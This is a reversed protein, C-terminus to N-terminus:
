VTWHWCSRLIEDFYANFNADSTAAFGSDVIDQAILSPKITIAWEDAIDQSDESEYAPVDYDEDDDVTDSKEVDHETSSDFLEGRGDCVPCQGPPM